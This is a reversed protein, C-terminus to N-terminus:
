AAHPHVLQAFPSGIIRLARRPQRTLAQLCGEADAQLADLTSRHHNHTVRGRLVRFLHDLPQLEPSYAPLYVLELWRGHRKLLAAVHRSKEPRHFHANDTLVIARRGRARSRQVLADCLTCFTLSDRRDAYRRIITGDRWDVAAFLHRKRNTGPAPIKPQHGRQMWCRTLTPLLALETEDQPYV